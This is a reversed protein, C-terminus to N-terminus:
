IIEQVKISLMKMVIWLTQFVFTFQTISFTNWNHLLFLVPILMWQYRGLKSRLSNYVYGLLDYHLFRLPSNCSRFVM